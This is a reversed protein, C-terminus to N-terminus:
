KLTAPFAPIRIDIRFWFIESRNYKKGPIWKPSNQFVRLVENDIRESVSRLIKVESLEGKKNICFKVPVMRFDNEVFVKSRVYLNFNKQFYEHFLDTGGPFSPLITIEKESVSYKEDLGDYFYAEVFEGGKYSVAACVQNSDFFLWEGDRVGNKFNGKIIIEEKKNYEKYVGEKVRFLTDKYSVIIKPMTFDVGKVEGQIKNSDTKLINIIYVASDVTTKQFDLNALFSVNNLSQDIWSTLGKEDKAGVFGIGEVYYDYHISPKVKGRVYFQEVKIVLCNPYLANPTILSDHLNYISYNWLSDVSTWKYGLNRNSPIKVNGILSKEDLYILDGEENIRLLVTKEYGEHYKTKLQYYEKGENTKIETLVERIYFSQDNRFLTKQGFTYPFYDQAFVGWNTSIIFILGLYKM